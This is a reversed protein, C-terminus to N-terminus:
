RSTVTTSLEAAGSAAYSPAAPQGSGSMAENMARVLARIVNGVDSIPIDDVGGVIGRDLLEDFFELDQPKSQDIKRLRRLDGYTLRDLQFAYGPGNGNGNTM